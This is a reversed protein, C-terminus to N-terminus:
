RVLAVQLSKWRYKDQHCVNDTHPPPPQRGRRDLGFARQDRLKSSTVDVELGRFLRQGHRPMRGARTQFLRCRCRARLTQSTAERGEGGDNCGPFGRASVVSLRRRCSSLETRWARSSSCSRWADGRRDERGSLCVKTGQMGSAVDGGAVFAASVAKWGGVMASCCPGAAGNGVGGGKQCCKVLCFM